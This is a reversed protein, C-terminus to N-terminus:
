KISAKSIGILTTKPIRHFLQSQSLALGQIKTHRHEISEGCVTFLNFLFLQLLTFRIRWLNYNIYSAFYPTPYQLKRM